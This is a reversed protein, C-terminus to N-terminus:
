GMPVMAASSDSSTDGMDAGMQVFSGADEIPEEADVTSLWASLFAGNVYWCATNPIEEIMGSSRAAEKLSDNCIVVPFPTDDFLEAGDESKTCLLIDIGAEKIGEYSDKLAHVFTAANEDEPDVFAFFTIPSMQAKTFEEGSPTNVAFDDVAGAETNSVAPVSNHLHRIGDLRDLDKRDLACPLVIIGCQGHRAQFDTLGHDLGPLAEMNLIYQCYSSDKRCTNKQDVIKNSLSQRRQM